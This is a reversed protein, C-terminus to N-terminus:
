KKKRILKKKVLPKHPMKASHPTSKKTALKGFSNQMMGMEKKISELTKGYSGVKDLIALQLRDMTNEIHKIRDLSHDLKVKTLAKFEELDELRKEIKQTKESIIQEAIEIFTDTANAGATPEEYEGYSGEQPYYDENYDQQPMPVQEQPPAPAQEQPYEQPQAPEEYEKRAPTYQTAGSTPPEPPIDGRIAPDINADGYVASKIESQNMADNINKPSIGQEQLKSIIQENAIGSGKMQNIRDLTGM